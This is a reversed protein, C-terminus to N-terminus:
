AAGREEQKGNRDLLKVADILIETVPWMVKVPGDATEITREYERYSLEGELLVYAGKQIRGVHEAIPGYAVCRHWATKERWEDKQDRYKKNTALSLKSVQKGTQSSSVEADKGAFGILTVRNVISM